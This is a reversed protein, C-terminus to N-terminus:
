KSIRAHEVMVDAVDNLLQALSRKNLQGMVAGIRSLTHGRDTSKARERIERLARVLVEKELREGAFRKKLDNMLFLPGLKLENLIALTVLAYLSRELIAWGVQHRGAAFAWEMLAQTLHSEAGEDGYERADLALGFLIETIQYTEVYRVTDSDHPIWTLTAALDLANERLEETLHRDSASATSLALLIKFIHAIWHVVDFTFRSRREVSLLLLSKVESHLEDSWAAINRLVTKAADSDKEAALVSNALNTLLVPLSQQSATSYFPALFYNQTFPEQANPLRLMTKAVMDAGSSLRRFVYEINSSKAHLTALTMDRIQEVGTLTAPWHDDRVLCRTSILVVKEVLSSIMEAQGRAIFAKACNGMLRLGEMLVNPMGSPVVALVADALYGAALHAHSITSFKWRYDIRLYLIALDALLAFNQELQQEDGRALAISISQRIHELTSNIFGDTTLPNDVFPANSFFTRGKASIYADNIVSVAMLAQKSIEHDGQESYRRSFSVAQSVAARAESTWHPNASFYALRPFDHDTKYEDPVDAGIKPVSFLPAAREARLSWAKLHRSATNAITRLQQIPNILDLARRYSYFFLLLTLITAWLNAWIEAALWEKEVVLASSMSTAPLAFALAFAGLLRWDSSLQRFLRHPIREVNIQMAFMVLSMVIAAAGLLAGGLSMFLTRLWELREGTAFYQTIVEANSLAFYATATAGLLLAVLVPTAGYRITWRILSAKLWYSRHFLIARQVLFLRSM